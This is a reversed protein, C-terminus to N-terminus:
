RKLAKPKDLVEAMVVARQLDSLSIITSEELLFIQKGEKPSDYEEIFNSQNDEESFFSDIRKRDTNKVDEYQRKPTKFPRNDIPSRFDGSKSASSKSTKKGMQRKNSKKASGVLNAIISFIIFVLILDLAEEGKKDNNHPSKM